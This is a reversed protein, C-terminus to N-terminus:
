NRSNPDLKWAKRLWISEADHPKPERDRGDRHIWNGHRVPEGIAQEVGWGYRLRDSLTKRPIGSFESLERITYEKGLYTVRHHRDIAGKGNRFVIGLEWAQTKITSYKMDLREAAERLTFGRLAFFQLIVSTDCNYRDRLFNHPQRKAQLDM